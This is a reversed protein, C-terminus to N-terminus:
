WPERRAAPVADWPRPGHHRLDTEMATRGAETMTQVRALYSQRLRENGENTGGCAAALDASRTTAVAIMTAPHTQVWRLFELAGDTRNWLWSFHRGYDVATERDRGWESIGSVIGWLTKVGLLM